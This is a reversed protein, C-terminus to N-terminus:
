QLVKEKKKSFKNLFGGFYYNTAAGLQTLLTGIMIEVIDKTQAPLPHTCVWALIGYFGLNAVLCLIAPTKDKIEMERKRASDVDLAAIKKEDLGIQAYKEKTQADIKRLQVLQEPSASALAKEISEQSANEDGLFFNGLVKGAAAGFPGGVLGGLFPAITGLIKKFNM